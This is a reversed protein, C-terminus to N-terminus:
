LGFHLSRPIERESSLPGSFRRSAISMARSVRPCARRARHTLTVTLDVRAARCLCVCRQSSRHRERQTCNEKGSTHGFYHPWVLFRVDFDESNWRDSHGSRPLASMQGVSPHSRGIQAIEHSGTDWDDSCHL